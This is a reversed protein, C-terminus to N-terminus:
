SSTRVTGTLSVTHAFSRRSKRNQTRRATISLRLCQHRRGMISCFARESVLPQMNLRRSPHHAGIKRSMRRRSLTRRTLRTSVLRSYISASHLERHSTGRYRFWYEHGNHPKHFNHLGFEFKGDPNLGVVNPDTTPCELWQVM